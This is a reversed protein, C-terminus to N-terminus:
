KRATENLRQMLAAGNSSLLTKRLLSTLARIDGAEAQQTAKQLAAGGDQESLLAMLKQGDDGSMIKQALSRDNKLREILGGTKADM